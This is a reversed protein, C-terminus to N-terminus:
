LFTPSYVTDISLLPPKLSCRGLVQPVSIDYIKTPTSVRSPMEWQYRFSIPKCTIVTTTNDIPFNLQKCFGTSVWKGAFLFCSNLAAPFILLSDHFILLSAHRVGAYWNRVATYKRVVLTDISSNTTEEYTDTPLRGSINIAAIIWVAQAVLASLASMNMSFNRHSSQLEWSKCVPSTHAWDLPPTSSLKAPIPNTYASSTLVQWELTVKVKSNLAESSSLNLFTCM